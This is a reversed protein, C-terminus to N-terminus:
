EAANSSWPASSLNLNEILAFFSRRQTTLIPKAPHTNTNSQLTGVDAADSLL